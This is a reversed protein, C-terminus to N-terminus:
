GEQIHRKGEGELELIRQEMVEILDVLMKMQEQTELTVQGLLQVDRALVEVKDLKQRSKGSLIGSLKM